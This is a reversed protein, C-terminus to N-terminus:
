RAVLAARNIPDTALDGPRFASTGVTISAHIPAAGGAILFETTEIVGAIRGMVRRASDIDTEPLIICMERGRYRAPLDEARVLRRVIQGVQRILNDGAAYGHKKNLGPVEQLGVYGLAFGSGHQECDAILADLYDLLFGHSFLGTLSDTTLTDRAAQAAHMLDGRYQQELVWVLVRDHLDNETEHNILIDNAGATYAADASLIGPQTCVLLLPLNFLSPNHRADRCFQIAQPADVADAVIIAALHRTPQLRELANGPAVATDCQYTEELSSVLDADKALNLVLIAADQDIEQRREPITVDVDFRAITERRRTLEDHLLRLRVLCRLRPVFRAFDLEIDIADDAYSLLDQIETRPRGRGVVLLPIGATRPDAKIGSVVPLWDCDRDDFCLVVASPRLAKVTDIAASDATRGVLTFGGDKVSNVIDVDGDIAHGLVMVRASSTAFHTQSSAIPATHYM